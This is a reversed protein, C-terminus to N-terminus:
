QIPYRDVKGSQPRPSNQKDQAFIIKLFDFAFRPRLLNSTFKTSNLLRRFNRVSLRSSQLHWINWWFV